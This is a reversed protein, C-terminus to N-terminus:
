FSKLKFPSSAFCSHDPYSLTFPSTLEHLNSFKSDRVVHHYDKAQVLRNKCMVDTRHKETALHVLFSCLAM